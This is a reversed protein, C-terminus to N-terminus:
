MNDMNLNKNLYETFLPVIRDNEIGRLRNLQVFQRRIRQLHAMSIRDSSLEVFCCAPDNIDNEDSVIVRILGSVVNSKIYDMIRRVVKQTEGDLVQVQNMQAAPKMMTAGSPKLSQLLKEVERNSDDKFLMPFLVHYIEQEINGELKDVGALISFLPSDWRASPNPEEYRQVLQNLLGTEWSDEKNRNSNWNFLQDKPALCHVLCYTTRSNKVECHLQYRFGKIYNLSDVIVVCTRSLDRKVVSMIKSRASKEGHSTTYDAHRLGLTEDSHYKVTYDALTSEAEIKAELLQKLKLAYTTKGSGPFGTFLVLPM